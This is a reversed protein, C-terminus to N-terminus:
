WTLMLLEISCCWSCFVFCTTLYRHLQYYQIFKFNTGDLVANTLSGILVSVLVSILVSVHAHILLPPCQIHYCPIDTNWIEWNKRALSLNWKFVNFAASTLNVKKIFTAKPLWIHYWIFLKVILNNFVLSALSVRYWIKLSLLPLTIVSWISLSLPPLHYWIMNIFVLSAVLSVQYWSVHGTDTVGRLSRELRDPVGWQWGM